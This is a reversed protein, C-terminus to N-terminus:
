VLSGGAFGPRNLGRKLWSANSLLNLQQVVVFAAALVVIEVAIRNWDM